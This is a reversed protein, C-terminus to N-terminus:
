NVRIGNKYQVLTLKNNSTSATIFATAQKATKFEGTLYSFQSEGIREIMVNDFTSFIAASYALPEHYVKSVEVKYGTYNKSVPKVMIMSPKSSEEIFEEGLDVFSETSVIDSFNVPTINTEFICTKVNNNITDMPTVLATASITVTFLITTTLTLIINKMRINNKIHFNSLGIAISHWFQYAKKM